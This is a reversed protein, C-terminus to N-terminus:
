SLEAKYPVKINLVTNVLTWMSWGLTASPRSKIWIYFTVTFDHFLCGYVVSLLLYELERRILRSDLLQEGYFVGCLSINCLAELRMKGGYFVANCFNRQRTCCLEQKNKVRTFMFKCCLNAVYLFTFHLHMFLAPIGRAQFSILFECMKTAFVSIFLGSPLSLAPPLVINFSFKFLHLHPSLILVSSLFYCILIHVPNMQGLFAIQPRSKM